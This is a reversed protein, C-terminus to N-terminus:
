RLLIPSRAQRPVPQNASDPDCLFPRSPNRLTALTQEDLWDLHIGHNKLLEDREEPLWEPIDFAKPKFALGREVSKRWFHPRVTVILRGGIDALRYRIGNILKDWRLSQQQNLGDVVVLLSALPPEAKWAEVRHMWRDRLTSEVREGSQKILQDVLFDDLGDISVSELQEASIFLSFGDTDTCLQASLWSKGHGEDGLLVVDNGASLADSVDKRLKTRIQPFAGDQM